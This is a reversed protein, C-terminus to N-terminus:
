SSDWIEKITEEISFGLPNHTSRSAGKFMRATARDISGDATHLPSDLIVPANGLTRRGPMMVWGTPDNTRVWNWAYRLWNNRYSEPQRAFWAIEDYGWTWISDLDAEGPNPGVGGYNDFDVVYPLSTTRWGSPTVGGKSRRYIGSLNGLDQELRLIAHHPQDVVEDPRLPWAHFDLLLKEDRVLGYTHASALVLGRRARRRAYTRVRSLLGAWADHNSDAAGTLEMQGFHISEHGADVYRTARYFFWMQTEVRRVDPVSAGPGWHDVFRGDEFLMAAYDFNRDHVPQGFAALIWHPVRINEVSIYATEFVAAQLMLDPLAAHVRRAREQALEFHAIDDHPPAWAYGAQGVFRAGIDVLMRLDDDFTDSTPEPFSATLGQFTIARSLYHDLESKSIGGGFWRTVSREGAAAVESTAGAHAPYHSGVGALATGAAGAGASLLGRRSWSGHIVGCDGRGSSAAGLAGDKEM